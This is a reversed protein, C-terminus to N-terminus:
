KENRMENLASIKIKDKETNVVMHQMKKEDTRRKDEPIEM